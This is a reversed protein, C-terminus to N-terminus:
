KVEGKQISLNTGTGADLDKIQIQVVYGADAYNHIAECIPDLATKLDKREQPTCSNIAFGIMFGSVIVGVCVQIFVKDIMNM